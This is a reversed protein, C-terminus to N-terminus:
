FVKASGTSKKDIKALNGWLLAFLEAHKKLLNGYNRGYKFFLHQYSREKFFLPVDGYGWM